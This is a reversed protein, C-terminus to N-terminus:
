QVKLFSVIPKSCSYYQQLLLCKKTCRLMQVSSKIETKTVKNTSQHYRTKCEQTRDQLLGFQKHGIKLNKKLNLFKFYNVIDGFLWEVSSRVTSVSTNFDQQAPTLVGGKFPRQLHARIPYAPDGYVCLPLGTVPCNSFRQLEQLFGSSALM